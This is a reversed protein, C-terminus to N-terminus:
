KGRSRRRSSRRSTKKLEPDPATSDTPRADCIEQNIEVLQLCNQRFKRYTDVEREIKALLPGPRLNLTKTKGGVKRTFAYYPGHGPHESASCACSEKGCCRYNETISGQRMDGTRAIEALLEERRAELAELPHTM